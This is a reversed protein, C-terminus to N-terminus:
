SCPPWEADPECPEAPALFPECARRGGFVSLVGGVTDALDEPIPPLLVYRRYLPDCVALETFVTGRETGSAARELLFRSDRYDRVM